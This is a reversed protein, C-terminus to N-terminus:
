KLKNRMKSPFVCYVFSNVPLKTTKLIGIAQKFKLKFTNKIVKRAYNINLNQIAEKKQKTSLPCNSHNLINKHINYNQEFYQNEYKNIEQDNHQRWWILDRQFLVIPKTMTARLNFEYDSAVGYNGFGGINLFYEKNYICGSPGIYLLGRNFFHYEFVKQSSFLQPFAFENEYNNFTMGIGAEPFKEMSDVMVELGHPYIIDDSDLYKIYKGKAYSAAKKRNPYDGLNKDNQYVKIRNDKTEYTKAIEFTKDTSCDDVIILKWNQYTSAIVSEISEEIYKERNYATMLVSVLPQNQM